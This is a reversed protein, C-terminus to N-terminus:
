LVLWAKVPICRISSTAKAQLVARWGGLSGGLPLPPSGVQGPSERLVPVFELPLLCIGPFLLSKRPTWTGVREAGTVLLVAKPM